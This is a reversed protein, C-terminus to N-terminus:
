DINTRWSVKKLLFSGEDCFDNQINFKNNEKNDALLLMRESKKDSKNDCFDIEIKIQQILWESKKNILEKNCLIDSCKEIEIKCFGIQQQIQERVDKLYEEDIEKGRFKCMSIALLEESLSFLKKLNDPMYYYEESFAIKEEITSNIFELIDQNYVIVSSNNKEEESCLIIVLHIFCNCIAFLKSPELNYYGNYFLIDIINRVQESTLKEGNDKGFNQCIKEIIVEKYTKYKEPIDCENGDLEINYDETEKGTLKDVCLPLIDLNNGYKDSFYFCYNKENEYIKSIYVDGIQTTIKECIFNLINM